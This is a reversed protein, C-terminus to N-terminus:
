GWTRNRLRSGHTVTGVASSPLLHLGLAPGETGLGEREQSWM